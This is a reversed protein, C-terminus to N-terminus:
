WASPKSINSGPIPNPFQAAQLAQHSLQIRFDVAKHLEVAPRRHPNLVGVRKRLQSRVLRIAEVLDSDNSVVAAVDYAGRWGDNLLHVALNVDSGKEKTEVVRAFKQAPEPSALPMSVVHSQFKGFHIELDPITRLARLYVEQRGPAGPDIRGSVRATFYKIRVIDNLPLLNRCLASINLWKFPTNRVAGFYLNFGDIYVYTRPRTAM